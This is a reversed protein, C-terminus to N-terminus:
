DEKKCCTKQSTHDKQSKDPEAELQSLSKLEQAVLSLLARDVGYHTFYGRKEGKVVGATRLVKLHQSVASESIRLHKTLAGVCYDRRLLLRVMEFRSEDALAKLVELLDFM